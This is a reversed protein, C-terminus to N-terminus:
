LDEVVRQGGDEDIEVRAGALVAVIIRDLHSPDSTWCAVGGSANIGRLYALQLPTPKNGPRKTEIEIRVGSGPLVGSIDAQGPVGFRVFRKGFKGVGTNQRWASIGRMKLLKLCARLVEAERPPVPKRAAPTRPSLRPPKM